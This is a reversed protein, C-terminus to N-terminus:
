TSTSPLDAIAWIESNLLKDVDLIVILRDELRAVGQLAAREIADITVPPSQIQDPQIKMVRSVGDVVVGVTRSGVNLVIIRTEDDNSREPLAFRQRLSVVPIVSGRLNILGVIWDPLQPVRTIPPPLIIEQIRRIEFAYDVEALRFGVFQITTVAPKGAKVTSPSETRAEASNIADM